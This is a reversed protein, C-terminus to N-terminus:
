GHLLVVTNSGNPGKPFKAAGDGGFFSIPKELEAQTYTLNGLTAGQAISPLGVGLALLASAFSIRRCALSRAIM